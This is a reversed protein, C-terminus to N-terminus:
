CVLTDGDSVGSLESGEEIVLRTKFAISRGCRPRGTDLASSVLWIKGGDSIKNVM